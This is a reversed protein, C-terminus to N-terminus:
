FDNKSLKEGLRKIERNVRERIELLRQKTIDRLGKKNYELYLKIQNVTNIHISQAGKSLERIKDASQNIHM